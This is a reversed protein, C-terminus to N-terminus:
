RIRKGWESAEYLNTIGDGDSDANSIPINGNGTEYYTKDDPTKLNLANFLHYDFEGHDYDYGSYVESEVATFTNGYDPDGPYDIDDYFVKDVERAIMNENTSTFVITNTGALDDVFGGSACQQMLFVKKYCNIQNTLAALEYDWLTEGDMLKLCSNGNENKGHDFTWVVLFDVSNMIDALGNFVSQVNAKTAKYDTLPAYIDPAVYQQDIGTFTFDEGDAFLVFIHDNDYGKNILTEWMLYTDFWFEDSGQAKGVGGPWLSKEDINYGAYDGTILVAYKEQATLFLILCLLIQTLLLKKFRM